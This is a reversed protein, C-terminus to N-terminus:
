RLFRERARTAHVIVFATSGQVYGVELFLAAQNPGVIM